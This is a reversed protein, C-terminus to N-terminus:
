IRSKYVDLLFRYDIHGEKEAFKLLLPWKSEDIEIGSNRFM